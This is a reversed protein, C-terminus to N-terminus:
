KVIFRLVVGILVLTTLVAGGAVAYPIWSVQRAPAARRRPVPGPKPVKPSAPLALPAPTQVPTAVVEADLTPVMGQGDLEAWPPDPVTRIPMGTLGTLLSHISGVTPHTASTLNFDVATNGSGDGFSELVSAAEVVTPRGALGAKMLRTVLNIVQSPVDPRVIEVPLPDAAAARKHYPIPPRGTLLYYLTAGLGYADLGPSTEADPGRYVADSESGALTRLRAFGPNLLRVVEPNGPGTSRGLLVNAPTLGGHVLGKGHIYALGAAVQRAIECARGVSMPGSCKVAEEMTQGDVFELVFFVRDKLRNVDTLGVVNPHSLRAAAKAEALVADRDEPNSTKAPDLVKVAVLRNMTRHRAKYVRGSPGKGIPELILYPGLLFGDSRGTLLRDAQFRTLVGTDVLVTAVERPDSVTEPLKRIVRVFQSEEVIGSDRFRDLFTELETKTAIETM